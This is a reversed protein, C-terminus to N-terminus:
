THPYEAELQFAAAKDVLWVVRGTAGRMLQSPYENVNEEGELVQKLVPAKGQGTVTFIAERASTLVNPTLTIRHSAVKEVYHAAVLREQEHILATHPFLSATHGDDGMGLFLLDFEPVDGDELGFETRITAEYQAAAEGPTMGETPMPFVSASNVGVKSFLEDNALKYNSDPHDHAVFREDVFFFSINDWAIESKFPESALLGYLLKPTSGGSLGVRFPVGMAAAQQALRQFAAAADLAVGTPSQKVHVIVGSDSTHPSIM